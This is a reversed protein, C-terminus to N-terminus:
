YASENDQEGRAEADFKGDKYYNQTGTLTMEVTIDEPFFGDAEEGIGSPSYYTSQEWRGLIDSENPNLGCGALFISLSLILIQTPAKVSATSM